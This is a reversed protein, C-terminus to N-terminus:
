TKVVRYDKKVILSQPSFNRKRKEEKGRKTMHQRFEREDRKYKLM